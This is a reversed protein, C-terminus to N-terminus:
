CSRIQGDWYSSVLREINDSMSLGRDGFENVLYKSWEKITFGRRITGDWDIFAINNSM